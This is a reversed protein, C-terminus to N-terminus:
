EATDNSCSVTTYTIDPNGVSATGITSVWIDNPRVRIKKVIKHCEPCSCVLYDQITSKLTYTISSGCTDAGGLHIYYEDEDAKFECKCNGCEFSVRNDISHKKKLGHKSIYM